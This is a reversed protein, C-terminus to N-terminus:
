IDSHGVYEIAELMWVVLPLANKGKVDPILHEVLLNVPVIWEVFLEHVHVWHLSLLYECVASSASVHFITSHIDILRLNRTFLKSGFQSKLPNLVDAGRTKCIQPVIRHPDVVVLGCM